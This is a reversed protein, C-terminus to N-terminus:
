RINRNGFAPDADGGPAAAVAVALRHRDLELALDLGIELRGPEPRRRLADGDSPYAPARRARRERWKKCGWGLAPSRPWRGPRQAAGARGRWYGLLAGKAGATAAPSGKGLWAGAIKGLM